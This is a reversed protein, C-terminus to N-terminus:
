IGQRITEKGYKENIEAVLHALELERDQEENFFALQRGQELNSVQVGILRLPKQNKLSQYLATALSSIDQDTYLSWGPTSSRTITRFDSFRVKITLTRASYGTRRLRRGVEQSLEQFASIIARQEKMDHFFTTERGISKPERDLVLPRPDQWRTFGYLEEGRNGFFHKFWELTQSGLEGVKTIGYKKLESATKPGIGPIIRVSANNLVKSADAPWLARLGDPKAMDSSIKALLKNSSVGISLPLGLEERVTKRIATAIAIGQGKDVELYAEDISVVEILPTYEQYIAFVLQSLEKYRNRNVPRIIVQPCLRKAMATPMASRIGFARAEYSCAAVVGRNGRNGGVIVPKGRLEPNDLQEVSAYFADLDCLLIDGRAM